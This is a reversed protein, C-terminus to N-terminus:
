VAIIERAYQTAETITGGHRRDKHEALGLRGSDVQYMTGVAPTRRERETERL